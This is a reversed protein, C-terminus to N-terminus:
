RLRGLWINATTFLDRSIGSQYAFEGMLVFLPVVTLMYSAATNYSGIALNGFAPGLGRYVIIMGIFGTFGMGFGIPMGLFLLSFLLCMGLIGVTSGNMDTPVFGLMPAIFLFCGAALALIMWPLRRDEISSRIAKLLDLLVAVALVLSGLAAVFRFPWIPIALAYSVEQIRIKEIGSKVLLYALLFFFLTSIVFTFNDLVNGVWKPFRSVVIDIRIHGEDVQTFALGLFVIFLMFFEEIEVGGPISGKFTLRSVVDIFVPIPMILLLAASIYNFFRSTPRIIKELGTITSNLSIAM